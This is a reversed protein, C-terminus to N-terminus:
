SHGTLSLWDVHTCLLEVAPWDIWRGRFSESAQEKLARVVARRSTEMTEGRLWVNTEPSGAFFGGPDEPVYSLRAGLTFRKSRHKLVYIKVTGSQVELRLYGVVCDTAWLSPYSLATPSAKRRTIMKATFSDCSEAYVPVSFLHHRM